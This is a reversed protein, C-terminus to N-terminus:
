KPGHDSNVQISNGRGEGPPALLWPWISEPAAWHARGRAVQLGYIRGGPRLSPGYGQRWCGVLFLPRDVRHYHSTKMKTTDGRWNYRLTLLTNDGSFTWSGHLQGGNVGITGNPHFFLTNQMSTTISQCAFLQGEIPSSVRPPTGQVAQATTAAAGDGLAQQMAMRNFVMDFRSHAERARTSSRSHASLSIAQGATRRLVPELVRASAAAFLGDSRM